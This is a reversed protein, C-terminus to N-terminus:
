LYMLNYVCHALAFPMVFITVPCLTSCMHYCPYLAIVIIPCLTLSNTLGYSDIMSLSYSTFTLMGTRRILYEYHPLGHTTVALQFVSVSLWSSHHWYLRNLSMRSDQGIAWRRAPDQRRSILFLGLSSYFIRTPSKDVLM